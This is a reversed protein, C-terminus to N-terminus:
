HPCPVYAIEALAPCDNLISLLAEVGLEGLPNDSLSPM